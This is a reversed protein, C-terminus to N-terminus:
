GSIFWRMAHRSESKVPRLTYPDYFTRAVHGDSRPMIWGYDWGRSEYQLPIATRVRVLPHSCAMFQKVKTYYYCSGVQILVEHPLAPRGAEPAVDDCLGSVAVKVECGAQFSAALEDISGSVANGQADHAYVETWVDHVMYRYINFDYVFNQSPANTGHDWESHTHYRPMNAPPTSPSPGPEATVDGGDLHLRAVAQEGNENYLFLSLSPRPGFGDPLAIPQRLTIIGAAWRDDILLTERFDTVEQILERRDSGPEIHEEHRFETYVRLDAGRRIADRLRQPSGDVLRRSEDLTMVTQWPTM